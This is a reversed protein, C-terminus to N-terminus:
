TQRQGVVEDYEENLPSIATSPETAHSRAAVPRLRYQRALRPLKSSRTEWSGTFTVLFSVLILRVDLSFSQKRIYLLDYRLKQRRPLESHGYIQALGTLGPRVTHRRDFSPIEKRFAKVLEAWEPRPGVFSMDGRCINWLQPLEDMATARLWRGVRTTRPDNESAPLAGWKRDSDATMSRFKLSVFEHRDKGVRPQRYFVPGGDELRVALAILGWLPLSVVLGMGSLLVDFIRKLV